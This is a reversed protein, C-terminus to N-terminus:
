TLQMLGELGVVRSPKSAAGTPNPTFLHDYCNHYMFNSTETPVLRQIFM